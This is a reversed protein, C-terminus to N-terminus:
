FYSKSVSWEKLMFLYRQYKYMVDNDCLINCYIITPLIHFRKTDPILLLIIIKISNRM